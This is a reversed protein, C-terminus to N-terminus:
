VFAILWSILIVKPFATEKFRLLGYWAFTM